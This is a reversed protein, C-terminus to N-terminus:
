KAWINTLINLFVLVCFTPFHINIILLTQWFCSLNLLVNNCRCCLGLDATATVVGCLIKNYVDCVVFMLSLPVTACFLFYWFTNNM